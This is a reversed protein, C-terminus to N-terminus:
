LSSAFSHRWRSQVLSTSIKVTFSWLRSDQCYLEPIWKIWDSLYISTDHHWLWAAQRHYWVNGETAQICKLGSDEQMPDSWWGQPQFYVDEDGM